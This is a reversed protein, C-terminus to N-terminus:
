TAICCQLVEKKEYRSVTRGALFTLRDVDLRERARRAATNNYRQKM